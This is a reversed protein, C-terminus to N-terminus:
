AGPMPGPQALAALDDWSTRTEAVKGNAFRHMGIITISMCLGTPPFHGMPGM